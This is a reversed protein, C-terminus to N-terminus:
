SFICFTQNEPLWYPPRYAHQQMKLGKKMLEIEIGNPAPVPRYRYPEDEFVDSEAEVIDFTDYSGYGMSQKKGFGTIHNRILREVEAIDDSVFYFYIQPIDKLPLPNNVSKFEGKSITIQKKKKGFDIIHSHATNFRRKYSTTTEIFDDENWFAFSALFYGDPHMAIPMFEYFPEYEDKSLYTKQVFNDGLKEKVVAYFLIGDFIPVHFFSVKSTLNFTIKYTKM